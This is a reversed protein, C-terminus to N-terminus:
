WSISEFSSRSNAIAVHAHPSVPAGKLGNCTHSSSPTNLFSSLRHPSPSLLHLDPPPGFRFDPPTTHLHLLATCVPAAPPILPPPISSTPPSPTYSTTPLPLLHPCHVHLATCLLHLHLHLLAPRALIPPSPSISRRGDLAFMPGRASIRRPRQIKASPLSRGSRAGVPRQGGAAAADSARAKARARPCAPSPSAAGFLVVRGGASGGCGDM